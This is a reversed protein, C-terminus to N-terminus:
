YKKNHYEQISKPSGANKLIAEIAEVSAFAAAMTTIYPIKHQIAM